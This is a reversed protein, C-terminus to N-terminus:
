GPPPDKDLPDRNPLGGQVTIPSRYADWQFANKNIRTRQLQATGENISNSKKVLANWTCYYICAKKKAPHNKISM